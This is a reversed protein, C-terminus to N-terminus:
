SLGFNIQFLFIDASDLFNFGIFISSLMMLGILGNLNFRDRTILQLDSQNNKNEKIKKDNLLLSFLIMAGTIAYYFALRYFLISFILALSIAIPIIYMQKKESIDKSTEIALISVIFISFPV